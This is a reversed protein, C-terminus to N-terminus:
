PLAVIDGTRLYSLREGLVGRLLRFAPLGTCHCTYYRAVPLSKLREGEALVAERPWGLTEAGGKGMMHFGGVFASLTRGPFARLVAEVIDAVGAHSCSNFAALTDGEDLVLTQEHSFDEPLYGADTRRLMGARRSKEEVQAVGDPLLFAGPLIERVGDVFVLRGPHRSALGCPIGIYEIGREGHDACNEGDAGRRLYLPATDNQALFADFGGSHDYHGHSLVAADIQSLDVGLARANKAFAANAGSDLLLKKDRHEIYLSLGHQHVLPEAARNEMLAIIKM